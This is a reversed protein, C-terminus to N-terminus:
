RRVPMQFRALYTECDACYIAPLICHKKRCLNCQVAKASPKVIANGNYTAIPVVRTPVGVVNQQQQTDQQHQFPPQQQQTNSSTPSPSANPESGGGKTGPEFSVKKQTPKPQLVAAASYGVHQQQQQQQHVFGGPTQEHYMTPSSLNDYGLPLPVRQYPSPVVVAGSSPQNPQPQQQQLPQQQQSYSLTNGNYTPLPLIQHQQQQQQQQYANLPMPPKQYVSINSLGPMGVGNPPAVRMTSPAATAVGGLTQQQHQLLSALNQRLGLSNSAASSNTTITTPSASVTQYGSVVQHHPQQSQQQQQHQTTAGEISHPLAMYPSGSSLQMSSGSSRGDFSLESGSDSGYLRQKQQQQQYLQASMGVPGVGYLSTASKAPLTANFQHTKFVTANAPITTYQQQQQQSHQKYSEVDSSSNVAGYYQQQQQQLQRQIEMNQKHMDAALSYMPGTASPSPSQKLQQTPSAAKIPHYTISTSLMPMRDPMAQPMIPTPSQANNLSEGSATPMMGTTAEGEGTLGGGPAGNATRLVRELIPNPIFGDDEDEDATAVLIVQDCFSVSKKKTRGSAASSPPMGNGNLLQSKSSGTNAAAGNNLTQQVVQNLMEVERIEEQIQSQAIDYRPKPLQIRYAVGMDRPCDVVDVCSGSLDTGITDSLTEAPPPTARPVPSLASKQKQQEQQQQQQQEQQQQQQLQDMLLLGSMGTRVNSPHQQQQLLQSGDPLKIQEFRSALDRVSRQDNGNTLANVAGNTQQDQQQQQQLHQGQYQQMTAAERCQQQQKLALQKMQLEKLWIESRNTENLIESVSIPNNPNGSNASSSSSLQLHQMLDYDHEHYHQQQYKYHSRDPQQQQQQQQQLQKAQLQALISTTNQIGSSPQQKNFSGSSNTVGQLSQIENLQEHLPEFDIAPPPPPFDESAQRSHCTTSPPSPYPPLELLGTTQISSVQQQQQQQQQQQYRVISDVQQFGGPGASPSPATPQELPKAPSQEQHVVACTTIITQCSDESMSTNSSMTSLNSVNAEHFPKIGSSPHAPLGNNVAAAAAAETVFELHRLNVGNLPLKQMQLLSPSSSANTQQHQQIPSSASSVASLASGLRVPPPPPVKPISLSRGSGHFSKRMLKSRELNPNTNSIPHYDFHGESLYGSNPNDKASMSLGVASDDLSTGHPGVISGGVGGDLLMQDGGGSIGGVPGSGESGTGGTVAETLDPMSRNKRRILGGMLLKRRIKHQKKGAKAEKEKRDNADKEEKHKRLTDKANVLGPDAYSSSSVLAKNRDESRSRKEKSDKGVCDKDGSVRSFLSRSERESPAKLDVAPEPEINEAEILKLTVKKKPLTAYIEINKSPSNRLLSGGVASTTGATTSGSLGHHGVQGSGGSLLKDKSNQRRHQLGGGILAHYQQLSQHHLHMQAQQQLQLQQQQHQQEKIMEGGKEILIRRNLSRARMVCTNHKMRAFTMTHPNSYPADMAARAKSAAAHCLVLATELDHADELLRSKELLQDAEMCLKECDGSLVVSEPIKTMGNGSSSSSSSSMLMSGVGNSGTPQHKSPFSDTSSLSYSDYGADYFQGAGTGNGMAGIGPGGNSSRTPSAPVSGNVQRKGVLYLYPNDLTTSSSSSASNRDGSWNGSDRRRPQNLHDPMSLGDPSSATGSSSSPSVNPMSIGVVGGNEGGNMLNRNFNLSSHQQQQPGQQQQPKTGNHTLMRHQQQQQQQQDHVSPFIKDQIVSLNQYQANLVNQVAKRSIYHEKENSDDNVGSGTNATPFIKSQIVTLNQYDCIPLARNPTPTIARRVNSGMTAKEPSPTVARRHQTMTTLEQQQQQQLLQHQPQSLQQQQQPQPLAYLLLLPQYRGRSCKDVVGEWSPGVEKVNADDFYVWVRLKTHFFFTTYHKGYYSVVGVLEHHVTQAWRHDSVQQFVDCLRLTTGIAKLVAHVQDAPPRESDWVVGISVVDPRNLLARRIGIKAGCASPCDRIDGMNGANRLLQGFTITQQHQISLSNQSTLASASVYHVMQTFPLKESNAGCECVSQEVVRMAFRQHAVCQAAECSDSDTTSLHQHVRHLLLEFCEAADGLCGLPFRRGALPGSALARRLPEPCLAPESSSQLQSFLEKLACFICDPGGCDHNQLQRFSRRFADLHWLVQVACNLFCNNQGPGNLLGKSHPLPWYSSTSNMPQKAAHQYAGMARAGTTATNRSKEGHVPPGLGTVDVVNFIAPAAPADNASSLASSSSASPLSIM